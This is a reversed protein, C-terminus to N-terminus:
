IPNKIRNVNLIIAQIKFYVMKGDAKQKDWWATNM